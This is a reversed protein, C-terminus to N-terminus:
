RKSYFFIKNAKPNLCEITYFTLKGIKGITIIHEKILDSITTHKDPEM